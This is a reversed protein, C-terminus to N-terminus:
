CAGGWTNIVVDVAHEKAELVVYREHDYGSFQALWFTRDNLRIVGLPLMYSGYDRSCNLVDVKMTVTRIGSTDGLFWGTGIGVGFRERETDAVAAFSTIAVTLTVLM